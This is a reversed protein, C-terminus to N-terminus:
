RIRTATFLQNYVNLTLFSGSIVSSAAILYMNTFGVNVTVIRTPPSIRAATIAPNLSGVSIQYGDDITNISTSISTVFQATTSANGGTPSFLVCGSVLWTGTGLTLPTSNVTTTIDIVSNTTSSTISKQDWAGEYLWQTGDSVIKVYGYQVNISSDSFFEGTNSLDIFISGAGSDMKKILFKRGSSLSVSPLTITRGSGGTTVLITDYGDTTTVTYNTNTVTKISAGGGGIGTGSVAGTAGDIRMAETPVGGKNVKFVIDADLNRNSITRDTTM